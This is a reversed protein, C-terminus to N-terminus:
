GSWASSSAKVPRHDAATVVAYIQVVMSPWVAISPPVQGGDICVLAKVFRAFRASTQDARNRARAAAAAARMARLVRHSLDINLFFILWFGAARRDVRASGNRHQVSVSQM